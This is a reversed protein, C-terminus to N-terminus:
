SPSPALAVEVTLDGEAERLVLETITGAARLDSEARGLHAVAGGSIVTQAVPARMSVKAESKAKRIQRLAEATATLV